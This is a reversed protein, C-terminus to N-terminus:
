STEIRSPVSKHRPPVTEPPIQAGFAQRSFIKQPGVLRPGFPAGPVSSSGGDCETRSEEEAGVRGSTAASTCRIGACRSARSGCTVAARNGYRNNRHDGFGHGQVTKYKSLPYQRVQFGLFRFRQEVSKQNGSFSECYNGPKLSMIPLVFKGHWRGARRWLPDSVPDAICRSARKRRALLAQSQGPIGRRPSTM